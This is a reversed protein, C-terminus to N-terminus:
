DCMCSHNAVAPSTACQCISHVEPITDSQLQLCTTCQVGAGQEASCIAKATCICLLVGVVTPLCILRNVERGDQLNHPREKNLMKVIKKM